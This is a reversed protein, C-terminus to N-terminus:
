SKRQPSEYLENKWIVLLCHFKLFNKRTVLKDSFFSSSIINFLFCWIHSIFSTSSYMSHWKIAYIFVLLLFMDVKHSYRCHLHSASSSLYFVDQSSPAVSMLLSKPLGSIFKNITALENSVCIHSSILIEFPRWLNSHYM